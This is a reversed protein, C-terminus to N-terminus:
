FASAIDYDNASGIESNWAKMGGKLYYVEKYGANQAKICAHLCEEGEECIFVLAKSISQQSLYNVLDGKPIRLSGEIGDDSGFANEPRLDILHFRSLNENLNTPSIDYIANGSLESLSQSMTHMQESLSSKLDKSFDGLEGELVEGDEKIMHTQNKVEDMMGVLNVFYESVNGELEKTRDINEKVQKVIEDITTKNSQLNASIESATSQSMQALVGVEQAVVSFGRGAAGARAAEISANFSLLQAKFAIQSIKKSNELVEDIIKQIGELQVRTESLQLINGSMEKYSAQVDNSRMQLTQIGLDIDEGRQVMALVKTEFDHIDGSTKTIIESGLEMAAYLSSFDLEKETPPDLYVVNDEEKNPSTLTKEKKKRISFFKAWKINKLFSLM